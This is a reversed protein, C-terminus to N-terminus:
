LVFCVAGYDQQVRQRCLLGEPKRGGGQMVTLASLKADWEVSHSAAATSECSALASDVGAWQAKEGGGLRSRM